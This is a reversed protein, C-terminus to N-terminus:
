WEKVLIDLCEDGEEDRFWSYGYVPTEDSYCDGDLSTLKNNKWSFVGCFGVIDNEGCLEISHLQVVKADVNAQMDKFRVPTELLIFDQYRENNKVISKLMEDANM